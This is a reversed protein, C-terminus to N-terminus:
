IINFILQDLYVFVLNLTHFRLFSRATARCTQLEVFLAALRLRSLRLIRLM